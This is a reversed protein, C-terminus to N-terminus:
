KCDVVDGANLFHVHDLIISGDDMKVIWLHSICFFNYISLTTCYERITLYLSRKSSVCESNSSVSFVFTLYFKYRNFDASYENRIEESIM